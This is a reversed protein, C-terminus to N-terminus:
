QLKQYRDNWWKVLKVHQDLTVWMLISEDSTSGGLMRPKRYWKRKGHVREYAVVRQADIALKLPALHKASYPLTPVTGYRGDDGKM